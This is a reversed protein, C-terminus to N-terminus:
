KGLLSSNLHCQLRHGNSVGDLCSVTESRGLDRLPALSLSFSRLKCGAIKLYKVDVNFTSAKTYMNLSFRQM